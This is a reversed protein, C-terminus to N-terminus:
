ARGENEPNAPDKIVKINTIFRFQRGLTKATDKDGADWMKSFEDNFPCALKISQPSWDNVFFGKKKTRANIKVMKVFPVGESDPVFRVIAGGDGNENRGLKWFRTDVDDYTKKENFADPELNGAMADWSFDM